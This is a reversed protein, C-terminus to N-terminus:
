YFTFNEKRLERIRPNYFVLLVPFPVRSKANLKM